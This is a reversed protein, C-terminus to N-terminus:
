AVVVERQNPFVTMVWFSVRYGNLPQEGHEGGEAGPLWCDTKQAWMSKYIISTEYSFRKKFHSRHSGEEHLVPLLTLATPLCPCTQGAGGVEM